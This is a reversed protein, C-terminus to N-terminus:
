YRNQYINWDTLHFDTMSTPFEFMSPRPSGINTVRLIQNAQFPPFYFAGDPALIPSGLYKEGGTIPTPEFGITGSNPDIIEIFNLSAPTTYIRGNPALGAGYNKNAGGMSDGIFQAQYTNKNVKLHTSWNCKVIFIEDNPLTQTSWFKNTTGSSLDDIFECTETDTNFVMPDPNSRNATMIKTGNFLCAGSFRQGGSIVPGTLESTFNVPDIKLVRNSGWWPMGYVMGNNAIAGGYWKFTGSIAAGINGSNKSIPDFWIPTPNHLPIAIILSGTHVLGSFRADSAGGSPLDRFVWSFNHYNFELIGGSRWPAFYIRDTLPCYTGSNFRLSGAIPNGVVSIEPLVFQEQNRRFFSNRRRNNM